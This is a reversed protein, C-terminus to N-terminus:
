TNRAFCKRFRIVHPLITQLVKPIATRGTADTIKSYAEIMAVHGAAEVATAEGEEQRLRNMVNELKRSAFPKRALIQSLLILMLQRPTSALEGGVGMKLSRHM